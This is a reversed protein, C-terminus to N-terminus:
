HTSETTALIMRVLEVAGDIEPEDGIAFTGWVLGTAVQVILRVREDPVRPRDPGRTEAVLGGTQEVLVRHVSGSKGLLLRLALQPERAIFSRVPAFPVTVEMIRRAYHCVREDGEGRAEARAVAAFRETLEGCVRDLLEGRSGFWRYLTAPSVGLRAALTQMDVREESLFIELALDVADGPGARRFRPEVAALPDSNQARGTAAM